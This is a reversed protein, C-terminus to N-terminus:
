ETRTENFKGKQIIAGNKDYLIGEGQRGPFGTAGTNWLIEGVYKGGSAYFWTVKGYLFDIPYGDNPETTIKFSGTIRDGNDFYMTGNCGSFNGNKFEGEYRILGSYGKLWKKIGKGHPVNNLFDGTYETEDMESTFTGRIRLGDKFMGTFTFKNTVSVRTGKGNWVGNKWMGDYSGGDPYTMKGKGNNCNGTCTGEQYNFPPPKVPEEQSFLACTCAIIILISIIYKM